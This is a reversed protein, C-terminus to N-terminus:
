PCVSILVSNRSIYIASILFVIHVFFTRVILYTVGTEQLGGEFLLDFSISAIAIAMTSWVLIQFMSNNSNERNRYKAVLYAVSMTLVVVVILQIWLNVQVDPQPRLDRMLDIVTHCFTLTIGIQWALEKKYMIILVMMFGYFGYNVLIRLIDGVIGSLMGHDNSMREAIPEMLAPFLLYAVLSIIFISLMEKWKDLEIKKTPLERERDFEGRSLWASYGIGAGLLLGFTFEM